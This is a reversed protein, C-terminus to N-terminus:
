SFALCDNYFNTFSVSFPKFTIQSLFFETVSSPFVATSCGFGTIDGYGTVYTVVVVYDVDGVGSVTVTVAGGVVVEGATDVPSVVGVGFVVSDVVVGVEGAEPCVPAVPSAPVVPVPAVTVVSVVTTFEVQYFFGYFAVTVYLSSYFFSFSYPFLNM